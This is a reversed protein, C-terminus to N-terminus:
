AARRAACARPLNGLPHERELAPLLNPLENFFWRLAAAWHESGIADDITLARQIIAGRLLGRYHVAALCLQM